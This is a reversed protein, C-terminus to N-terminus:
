LKFYDTALTNKTTALQKNLIRTVVYSKDITEGM